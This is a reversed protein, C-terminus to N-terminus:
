WYRVAPMHESLSLFILLRFLLLVCVAGTLLVFYQGPGYINFVPGCFIQFGLLPYRVASMCCLPHASNRHLATKNTFYRPIASFMSGVRSSIFM